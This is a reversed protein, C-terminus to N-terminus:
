LTSIMLGSGSFIRPAGAMSIHIEKIWVLMLFIQFMHFNLLQLAM